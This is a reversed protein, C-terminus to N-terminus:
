ITNETEAALKVRVQVPRHNYARSGADHLNATLQEYTLELGKHNIHFHETAETETKKEARYLFSM